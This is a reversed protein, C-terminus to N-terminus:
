DEFLAIDEGGKLWVVTLGARSARRGEGDLARLRAGTVEEEDSWLADRSIAAAYRSSLSAVAVNLNLDCIRRARDLDGRSHLPLM